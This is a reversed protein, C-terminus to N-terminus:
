DEKKGGIGTVKLVVITVIVLVTLIPAILWTPFGGEEDEIVPEPRKRETKVDEDDDTSSAKAKTSASSKGASKSKEKSSSSKGKGEEPAKAKSGATLAAFEDVDAAPKEAADAGEAPTGEESPAATSDDAAAKKLNSALTESASANKAAAAKAKEDAIRANIKGNLIAIYSGTGPGKSKSKSKSKTDTAAATQGTIASAEVLLTRAESIKDEAILRDAQVLLDAQRTLQAKDFGRIRTLENAALTLYADVASRNRQDIQIWKVGNKRDAEISAKLAQDERSRAALLQDRAEPSSAALAREYETNQYDVRAALAQLQRGFAPLVELAIDLAQPFAPTGLYNEEIFEYERLASLYGGLNQVKAASRLRSLRLESDVLEKLDVKEKPSYWRDNVKIFGREVQDLEKALTDRIEEVKAKHKSEPFNKLFANPGTELLTRYTEATVLSETPLLKQLNAFEVDDPAAKTITEIEARSLIKTEKISQSIAVEIKVIDDAEYTIKGSFTQGSKMKIEDASATLALLSSLLIGLLIQPLKM